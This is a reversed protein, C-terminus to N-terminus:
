DLRQPRADGEGALPQRRLFQGVRGCYFLCHGSVGLRNSVDVLCVDIRGYFYDQLQVSAIRPNIAFRLGPAGCHVPDAIIARPLLGTEDSNVIQLVLSSVASEEHMTGQILFMGRVAWSFRWVALSIWPLM